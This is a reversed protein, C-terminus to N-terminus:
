KTSGALAEADAIEMRRDRQEAMREIRDMPQRFVKRKFDVRWQDRQDM